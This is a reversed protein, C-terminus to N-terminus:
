LVRELEDQARIVEIAADERTAYHRAFDEFWRGEKSEAVLTALYHRARSLMAARAQERQAQQAQAQAQAHARERQAREAAERQDREAYEDRLSDLMRAIDNTM